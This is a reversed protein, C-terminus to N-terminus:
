RNEGVKIRTGLFWVMKAAPTGPELIVHPHM